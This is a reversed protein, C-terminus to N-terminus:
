DLASPVLESLDPFSDHIFDPPEGIRVEGAISRYALVFEGQEIPDVIANCNDIIVMLHFHASAVSYKILQKVMLMSESDLNSYWNHLEREAAIPKKSPNALSELISTVCEPSAVNCLLNAFEATNM